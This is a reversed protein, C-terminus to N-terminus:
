FQFCTYRGDADTVHTSAGTGLLKTLMRINGKWSAILLGTTWGHTHKILGDEDGSETLTSVEESGPLAKLGDEVENRNWIDQAHQVGVRLESESCSGAAEESSISGHEVDM